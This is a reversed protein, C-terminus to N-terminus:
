GRKARGKRRTRGEGGFTVLEAPISDLVRCLRDLSTRSILEFDDSWLKAAVSPSIDLAKQLQYATTIGRKRAIEQVHTKIM